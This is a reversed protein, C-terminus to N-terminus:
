TPMRERAKARSLMREAIAQHRERLERPSVVEVQDGYGCIWWIIENLGDVEVRFDLRGDPRRDIRQTAHWTVEAVNEAVKREFLLHVPYIRGEPIMGWAKGIHREVSFDAPPEFWEALVNLRRIRSIKFARVSEHQKSYAFLYWGPFRFFLRYPHARLRIDGGDHLSHYSLETKRHDLIAREIGEVLGAADVNRSAPPWRVTIRELAAGCDRKVAEPLLSEIKVAADLAARYMPHISRALFKRTLMLLALSEDLTFAIPPLFSAEPIAYTGHERDFHCPVGTEELLHLDRFITRRTVNLSQALSDADYGRRTRLMTMIQILRRVRPVNM